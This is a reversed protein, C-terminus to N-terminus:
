PPQSLLSAEADSDTDMYEAQSPSCSYGGIAPAVASEDDSSAVNLPCSPTGMHSFTTSSLSEDDCQIRLRKPKSSRSSTSSVPTRPSSHSSSVSSTNITLSSRRKSTQPGDDSDEDWWNNLSRFSREPPLASPDLTTSNTPARSRAGDFLPGAVFSHGKNSNLSHSLPSPRAANPSHKPKHGFAPFMKRKRRARTPSYKSSIRVSPTDSGNVISSQPSSGSPNSSSPTRNAPGVSVNAIGPRASSSGSTSGPSCVAPGEAVCGIGPRASSTPPASSPSCIAPGGM